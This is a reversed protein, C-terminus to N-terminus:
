WYDDMQFHIIILFQTNTDAKLVFSRNKTGVNLCIPLHAARSVQPLVINNRIGFVRGYLKPGAESRM